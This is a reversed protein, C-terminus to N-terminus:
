ILFSQIFILRDRGYIPPATNSYRLTNFAHIESTPTCFYDFIPSAIWGFALVKVDIKFSQSANTSIKYYNVQDSCCKPRELVAKSKQESIAKKVSCCSKKPISLSYTKTGKIKCSHKYVSFGTSALLLPFVMFLCFIRTLFTKM